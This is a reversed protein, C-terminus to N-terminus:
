SSATDITNSLTYYNAPCSYGTDMKALSEWANTGIGFAPATVVAGSYSDAACYHTQFNFGVTAAHSVGLMLAAASVTCAVRKTPGDSFATRKRKM